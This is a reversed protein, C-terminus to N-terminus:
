REWREAPWSLAALAAASVNFIPGLLFSPWGVWLFGKLFVLGLLGLSLDYAWSMAFVLVSLPALGKLDVQRRASGALYAALTLLLANAGFLHPSLLDLFLGWFFGAAMAAVLGGRSALVLTFVLLFRPAAGWLTWHSAWWWQLIMAGLFFAAGRLLMM